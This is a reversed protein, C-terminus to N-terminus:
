KKATTGKTKPKIVKLATLVEELDYLRRYRSVRICPIQGSRGLTRLQRPTTRLFKAAEEETSLIQSM